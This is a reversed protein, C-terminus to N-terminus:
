AEFTPYSRGHKIRADATTFHRDVATAAANRRAARATAEAPMPERAIELLLRPRCSPQVEHRERAQHKM